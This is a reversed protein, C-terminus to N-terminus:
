DNNQLANIEDQLKRIYADKEAALDRGTRVQQELLTARERMEANERKLRDMEEAAMARDDDAKRTNDAAPATTALTLALLLLATRHM